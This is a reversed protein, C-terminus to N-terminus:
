ETTTYVTAPHLVVAWWAGSQRRHILTHTDVDWRHACLKHVHLKTNSDLAIASRGSVGGGGHRSCTPCTTLTHNSMGPPKLCAWTCLCPLCGAHHLALRGPMTVGPMHGPSQLHTGMTVRPPRGVHTPAYVHIYGLKAKIYMYM